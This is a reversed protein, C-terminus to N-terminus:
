PEAIGTNVVAGTAFRAFLTTKGGVDKTYLRCGNAAPATPDASQENLLGLYGGGATGAAVLAQMTVVNGQLTLANDAVGTLTSAPSLFDPQLIVNGTTSGLDIAGNCREILIGSAQGSLARIDFIGVGLTGPNRRVIQACRILSSDPGTASQGIRIRDKTYTTGDYGALRELDVSRCSLLRVEGGLCQQFNIDAISIDQCYGAGGSEIHIAYDGSNEFRSKTWSCCNIANANSVMNWGPVTATTPMLSYCESVHLEIADGGATQLVSKANNAQIFSCDQLSWMAINNGAMDIIHGGGSDSWLSVGSMRFNTVDGAAAFLDNTASRLRVDGTYRGGAAELRTNSQLIIPTEINYYSSPMPLWVAGGGAAVVIDFADNLAAGDGTTGDGADARSRRIDYREDRVAVRRPTLLTTANTDDFVDVVPTETADIVDDPLKPDGPDVDVFKRDAGGGTVSVADMVLDPLIEDAGVTTFRPAM